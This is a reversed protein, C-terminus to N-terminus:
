RVYSDHVHANETVPAASGVVHETIGIPRSHYSSQRLLFQYSHIFHILLYPLFFFIIFLFTSDKSFFLYSFSFIWSKWVHFIHFGDHIRSVCTTGREVDVFGQGNVRRGMLTLSFKGACMDASWGKFMEVFGDSTM